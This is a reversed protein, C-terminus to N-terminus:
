YDDNEEMQWRQLTRRTRYKKIFYVAVFLLLIVVWLNFSDLLMSALNFKRHVFREWEAAFEKESCGCVELLAQSFEKGSAMERVLRPLAEGGGSEFLYILAVSRITHDSSFVGSQENHLRTGMEM